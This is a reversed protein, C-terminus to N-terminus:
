ERGDTINQVIRQLDSLSNIQIQFSNMILVDQYQCDVGLLYTGPNEKLLNLLVNASPADREFIILKPHCTNLDKEFDTSPSTWHVLSDMHLERLCAEVGDMLVTNGIILVVSSTSEVIPSYQM